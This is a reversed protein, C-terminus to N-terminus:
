RTRRIIAKNYKAKDTYQDLPDYQPIKKEVIERPAIPRSMCFYRLSDCIHDELDTDLDEAKHEDYMMLPITRITDKCNEFIYLKAFGEDDFKLREHVQMWGPIRDNIGKEFWLHQKEAEEIIAIGRSGDWISPDAVGQIRKGALYPHEREIRAIEKFQQEPSWKVGDNPTGTCGYLELIMYATDEYDVAYWNVAFPKGFGFDYSRYIKWGKPIDFPKIVHVWRREQLADEVSIGAEHCRQPEPVTRFEEFFAGEFVDWRGNLWAERLKPPLAELQKLYDPNQEMLVKNDTVLSQIFMYDDPEEGTEYARDIFLRKVWQHGEGGPNMSLYIRKPYDNVGRVCASIKKFKDESQHTAEDIFLIDVETGQFRDADKETECYRFLIRSGNKFTINKKSDNYSAIREKKNSHHCRLMECLPNIHNETLEPYTRRIIMCKIKPYKLCLLVAKIRIAWSKGGGRAGGFAIYKKGSAQLFQKQKPSPEPLSLQM